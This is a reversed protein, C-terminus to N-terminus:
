QSRSDAVNKGDSDVRAKCVGNGAASFNPVNCSRASGPYEPNAQGSYEDACYANTLSNFLPASEGLSQKDATKDRKDCTEKETKYCVKAEAKREGRVGRLGTHEDRNKEYGNSFLNYDELLIGGLSLGVIM